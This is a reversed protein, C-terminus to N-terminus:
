PVSTGFPSVAPRHPIGAFRNTPPKYCTKEVGFHGKKLWPKQPIKSNGLYQHHITNFQFWKFCSFCHFFLIEVLRKFNSQQNSSPQHLSSSTPGALCKSHAYPLDSTQSPNKSTCFSGLMQKWNSRQKTSFSWFQQLRALCFISVSVPFFSVDLCGRLCAVLGVNWREYYKLRIKRDFQNEVQAHSQAMSSKEYLGKETHSLKSILLFFLFASCKLPPKSEHTLWQIGLKINHPIGNPM